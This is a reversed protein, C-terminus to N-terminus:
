KDPWAAVRDWVAFETDAAELYGARDRREREGVALRQLHARLAERVLASRNVRRRRAARDTARLLERELVIQITEMSHIRNL